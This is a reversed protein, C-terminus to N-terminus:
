QPPGSVLAKAFCRVAKLTVPSASSLWNAAVECSVKDSFEATLTTVAPTAVLVAVLVYPGIM